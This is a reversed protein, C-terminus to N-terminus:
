CSSCSGGSSNSSCNCTGCPQNCTSCVSSTNCYNTEGGSTVSPPCSILAGLQQEIRKLTCCNGGVTIVLADNSNNSAESGMLIYDGALSFTYNYKFVGTDDLETMTAGAVVLNDLPDFINLIVDNQGPTALYAILTDSNLCVDKYRDIFGLKPGASLSGAPGTYFLEDQTTAEAGVRENRFIITYSGPEVGEYDEPDFNFLYSGAGVESMASKFNPNVTITAPTTPEFTSTTFDVAYLDRDRIITVIPVEGIAPSGQISMSMKLVARSNQQYVSGVLIPRAM